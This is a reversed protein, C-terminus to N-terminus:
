APSWYPCLCLEALVFGHKVLIAEVVEVPVYPFVSDEHRAEPPPEKYVELDPEHATPFGLEVHTWPGRDDRPDCYAGRRAIISVSWGDPCTARTNVPFRM